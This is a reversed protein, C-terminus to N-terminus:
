IPKNGPNAWNFRKAIIIKENDYAEKFMKIFFGPIFSQRRKPLILKNDVIEPKKPLSNEIFEKPMKVSNILQIDSVPLTDGYLYEKANEELGKLKDSPVKEANIWESSIKYNAKGQSVLKIRRVSTLENKLNKTPIRLLVVTNSPYKPANQDPYVGAYWKVMGELDEVPYKHALSELDSLFIGEGTSSKKIYGEKLMSDYNERSTMHYFYEPIISKNEKINNLSSNNTISNTESNLNKNSTSSFIKAIAKHKILAIALAALSIGILIYKQTNEKKNISEVRDSQTKVSYQVPNKNQQPKNASNKFTIKQVLM